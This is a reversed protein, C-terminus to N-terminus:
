SVFLLRAKSGKCKLGGGGLEEGNTIHEGTGPYPDQTNALVKHNYFYSNFTLM